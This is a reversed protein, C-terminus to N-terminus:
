HNDVFYNWARYFVERQRENLYLPYNNIPYGRRASRYGETWIDLNTINNERRGYYEYASEKYQGKFFKFQNIAM